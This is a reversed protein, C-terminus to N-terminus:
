FKDIVMAKIVHYDRKGPKKVETKVLKCKLPVTRDKWNGDLFENMTKRAVGSLFFIGGPGAPSKDTLKYATYDNGTDENHGTWVGDIEVKYLKNFEVELREGKTQTGDWQELFQAVDKDVKNEIAM